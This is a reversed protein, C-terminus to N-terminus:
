LLIDVEGDPPIWELVVDDCAFGLDNLHRCLALPDEHHAVVRTGDLSWAVWQDGYRALEKLPIRNRNRTYLNPDLRVKPNTLESM